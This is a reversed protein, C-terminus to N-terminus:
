IALAYDDGFLLRRIPRYEAPQAKPTAIYSYMRWPNPPLQLHDSLKGAPLVLFYNAFTDYLDATLEQNFVHRAFNESYFWGHLRHALFDCYTRVQADRMEQMSLMNIALDITPFGPLRDLLYHPLLIFDHSAIIQDFQDPSFSAPDYIYIRRTPNNLRLFVASFFLLEPLDVIVYATDTESMRMLQHALGGYGAGIEFFL